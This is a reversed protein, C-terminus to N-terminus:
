WWAGNHWCYSSVCWLNVHLNEPHKRASENGPRGVAVGECYWVVEQSAVEFALTHM